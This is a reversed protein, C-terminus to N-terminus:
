KYTWLTHADIKGTLRERTFEVTAKDGSEATDWTRRRVKFEIWQPEVRVLVIRRVPGDCKESSECQDGRYDYVAKSGIKTEVIERRPFSYNYAYAGVFLVAVLALMSLACYTLALAIHSAARELPGWNLTLVHQIFTLFPAAPDDAELPKPPPQIIVLGPKTPFPIFADGPPVSDYNGHHDFPPYSVSYRYTQIAERMNPMSPPDSPPQQTKLEQLKDLAALMTAETSNPDALIAEADRIDQKRKAEWDDVRLRASGM